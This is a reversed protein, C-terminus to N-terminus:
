EDEDDEVVWDVFSVLFELFTITGDGDWDLEQFRQIALRHHSGGGHTSGEGLANEVENRTISGDADKDFFAFADAVINIAKDIEGQGEPAEGSTKRLNLLTTLAVVIVFEHFDLEHSADIDSLKFIDDLLEDSAEVGLKPLCAEIENRQLAGDGSKDFEKFMQKMRLFAPEITAFKMLISNMTKLQVTPHACHDKM